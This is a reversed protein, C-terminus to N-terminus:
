FSALAKKAREALREPSQMAEKAFTAFVEAKAADVAKVRATLDDFMSAESGM